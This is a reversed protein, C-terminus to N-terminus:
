GNAAAQVPAYPRAGPTYPKCITFRGIPCYGGLETGDMPRWHSCALCALGDQSPDDARKVAPAVKQPTVEGSQRRERSRKMRQRNAERRCDEGGCTKQWVSKPQYESGCGVCARPGGFPLLDNSPEPIILLRQRKPRGEELRKRERYNLAAQNATRRKLRYRCAESKCVKQQLAVPMYIEGCMQCPRETKWVYPVWDSTRHSTRQYSTILLSRCINSGCTRQNHSRPVFQRPCFGCQRTKM